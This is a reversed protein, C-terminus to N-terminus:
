IVSSKRPIKTNPSSSCGPSGAWMPISSSGHNIGFANGLVVNATKRGVGPLVCLAEMDKPVEGGHREAVATAMGILSKTKNRFFGTSRVLDEVDEPRAAALDRATPYKAFLAPTVLNVRVDTCQASLITAALLEFPTRHDLACHANPYEAKLKALIKKARKTRDAASEAM